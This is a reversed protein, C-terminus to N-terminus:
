KNFIMAERGRQYNAPFHAFPMFVRRDSAECAVELAWSEWQKSICLERLTRGRLLWPLGSPCCEGSSWGEEWILQERLPWDREKSWRLSQDAIRGKRYSAHWSFASTMAVGEELLVLSSEVCPCWWITLVLILNIINKAALSLSARYLWWFWSQSTVTAWIM